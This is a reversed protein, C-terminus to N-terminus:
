CHYTVLARAALCCVASISNNTAPPAQMPLGARNNCCCSFLCTNVVICVGPMGWRDYVFMRGALNMEKLSLPMVMSGLDNLGGLVRPALRELLLELMHKGVVYPFPEAGGEPPSIVLARTLQTHQLAKAYVEENVVQMSKDNYERYGRVSVLLQLCALLL